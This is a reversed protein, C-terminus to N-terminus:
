TVSSHIECLRSRRKTQLRGHKRMGRLGHVDIPETIYVRRSLPTLGQCLSTLAKNSAAQLEPTCRHQNLARLAGLAGLNIITMKSTANSSVNSLAWSAQEQVISRAVDAEYSLNVLARATAEQVSVYPSRAVKILLRLGSNHSLVRQRYKSMVALNAIARTTQVLSQEEDNRAARDLADLLIRVADLQGLKVIIDENVALNAIAWVAQMRVNDSHSAALVLLLNLAGAEAMQFHTSLHRLYIQWPGRLKRKIVKMIKKLM